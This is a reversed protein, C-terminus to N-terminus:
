NERSWLQRARARAAGALRLVAQEAEGQELVFEASPGSCLFGQGLGHLDRAVHAIGLAQDGAGPANGM